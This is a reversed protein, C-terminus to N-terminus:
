PNKHFLKVSSRQKVHVQKQKDLLRVVQANQRMTWACEHAAYHGGLNLM